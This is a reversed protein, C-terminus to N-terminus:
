TAGTGKCELSKIKRKKVIKTKKKKGKKKNIASGNQETNM